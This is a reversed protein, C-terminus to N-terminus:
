EEAELQDLIMAKRFRLNELMEEKEKASFTQRYKLNKIKIDIQANEFLMSIDSYALAYPSMRMLRDIKRM